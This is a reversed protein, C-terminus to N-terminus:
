IKRKEKEYYKIEKPIIIEKDFKSVDIKYEKTLFPLLYTFVLLPKKFLTNNWDQPLGWRMVYKSDLGESKLVKVIGRMIEFSSFNSIFNCFTCNCQNSHNSYETTMKFPLPPPVRVWVTKRGVSKLDTTAAM